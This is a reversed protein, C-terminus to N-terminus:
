DIVDRTGFNPIHMVKYTVDKNNSKMGKGNKSIFELFDWDHGYKDTHPPAKKALSTKVIVESHGIQSPAFNTNRIIKIPDLYSNFYVYDMNTDKINNYYNSFHNPEIVDDNAFFMLYEGKANQINHNTIKYGCGGSHPIYQYYELLNGEKSARNKCDELYGNMILEQFDPCNDGGIMAHWGNLDQSLICEIARKTREPRKWCPLSVTIKYM